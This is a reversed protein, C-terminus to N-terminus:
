GRQSGSEKNAETESFMKRNLLFSAFKARKQWTAFKARNKRGGQSNRKRGDRERGGRSFRGETREPERGM